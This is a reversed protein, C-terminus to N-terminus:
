LVIFLILLLIVISFFGIAIWKFFKKLIGSTGGMQKGVENLQQGVQGFSEKLTENRIQKLTALKTDPNWHPKLFYIFKTLASNKNLKADLVRRIKEISDLEKKTENAKQTKSKILGFYQFLSFSIAIFLFVIGYYGAFIVAESAGFTILYDIISAGFAAATITASTNGVAVGFISFIFYSVLGAGFVSSTVVVVLDSIVLALIAGLFGGVFGIFPNMFIVTFVLLGIVFGTLLIGLRYIFINLLGCVLGALSATVIDANLASFAIFGIAAGLFVWGSISFNKVM